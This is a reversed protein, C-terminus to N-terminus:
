LREQLEKIEALTLGTANAITDEHIKMKLLNIATQTKANAIAGEIRALM